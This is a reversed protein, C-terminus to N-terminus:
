VISCYMINYEVSITFISTFLSSLKTELTSVEESNVNVVM